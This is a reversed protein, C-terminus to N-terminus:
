RTGRQLRLNARFPKNDVVSQYIGKIMQALKDESISAVIERGNSREAISLIELLAEGLQQPDRSVVKTPHVGAVREVVDGVEVSVIPLNCALAEKVINPSGENDSTFLLCDSANLYVPVLKPDTAGELVVLRLNPRHQSAFDFASRALDLRKVRPTVGCNFLVVEETNSWGLTSRAEDRQQPSFLELNVGSPIVTVRSRCWFLRQKLGRSVCIIASARLAALQSLVRGWISRLRSVSRTPNLDSGRYTVVLPTATGFACLFATMTGYHAHILDPKFERIRKRLEGWEKWLSTPSVRSTLFFVDIEVGAQQISSAQRKAFIMGFGNGPTAPIVQLVRLM